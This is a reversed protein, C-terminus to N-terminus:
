ERLAELVDSIEREAGIDKLFEEELTLDKLESPKLTKILTGNKLIAIESCIMEAIPMIHTSLLVTCGKEAMDEILDRFIRASVPDLGSIPEDLILVRPSSLLASIIAVKQRNGKSLSGIFDNARDELSFANLLKKAREEYHHPDMRRVSAIFNLYEIISLSEYLVIDEPLYGIESKAEDPKKGLVSITGSDPEILGLILKMLTSKGSGNPGLLGYVAGSPINLTVDSLATIPGYSKTLSETEIM